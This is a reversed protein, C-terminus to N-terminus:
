KIEPKGKIHLQPKGTRENVSLAATQEKSSGGEPLVAMVAGFLCGLAAGIFFGLFATKRMGFPSPLFPLLFAFLPRSPGSSQPHDAYTGVANVRSM